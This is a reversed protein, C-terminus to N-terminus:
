EQIVAGRYICIILQNKIHVSLFLRQHLYYLWRVATTQVFSTWLKMGFDSLFIHRFNSQYVTEEEGSIINGGIGCCSGFIRVYLKVAKPIM